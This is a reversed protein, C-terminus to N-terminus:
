LSLKVNKICLIGSEIMQDVGDVGLTNGELLPITVCNSEKERRRMQVHTRGAARLRTAHLPFTPQCTLLWAPKIYTKPKNRVSRAQTSMSNPLYVSVDSM